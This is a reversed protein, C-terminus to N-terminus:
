TQVTGREGIQELMFNAILGLFRKHNMIWSFMFLDKAEQVFFM